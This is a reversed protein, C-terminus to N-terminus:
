LKLIKFLVNQFLRVQLSISIKELLQDNLTNTCDFQFVVHRAFVHKVCQIVYETESETLEIPPSSKILSGLNLEAIPEIAALKELIENQRHGTLKENPAKSIVNSQSSQSFNGLGSSLSGAPLQLGQQDKNPLKENPVSSLDFPKEQQNSELYLVLAQELSSISVVFPNLICKGMLTRERQKLINLYYTARDRVEDDTDLCSRELLVIINPLLDDCQAGFKALASVAASRIPSTELILRNYIYRIYKSPRSTFPGEKGLLHLIKIAIEVPECDEIFECLYALGEEKAEPIDEIIDIITEVLCRKYEFGGEERLMNSLFHMMTNHKKPFKQCLQRTARVVIIKFEDSIESMFTTIIKILRDISGEHGTKLLTTIALTAISRNSDNILIELDVNCSMVANPQTMAIKNLTRVAAFRLIAKQSSLFLQLVSVAPMLEKQTTCSLNVIANAAEYVVMESKHRLCSEIFDFYPTNFGGTEEEILKVAIRILMCIAFNSKLGSHIYKTVMKTVALRDSKRIHYLLGLAHHQVMAHDSNVAEQAENVWRKVGEPVQKALHLASVLAASAMSANKDVIAQKMYREIGPFVTADTIMCLTRLAQPRCSDDKANMDSTLSSTVVYVNEAVSSLEKIGLYLLRRLITDKCQFLKTMNFFADTAEQVSLVEGQNLINLIKTLTIACKRANVPTENFVRAEQLVSSKQLKLYPNGGGSEEDDKKDRKAYM